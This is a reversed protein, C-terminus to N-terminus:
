QAIHLPLRRAGRLTPNCTREVPGTVEFGRVRRVLEGLVAAGEMRALSAGLCFHIGGGFALHDDPNRAARFVDPDPYKRPDRNAAGFLLLVRAGEPIERDGV